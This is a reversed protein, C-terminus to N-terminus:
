ISKDGKYKQELAEQLTKPASKGSNDAPPPTGVEAGKEQITGFYGNYEAKIPNLLQEFGKIRNNEVEITELSFKNSLADLILQDDRVGSLLLEKRLADKKTQNAHQTEINARFEKYESNLTDHQIKLADYQKQLEGGDDLQGVTSQKAELKQELKQIREEYAENNEKSKERAVQTEQNIEDLITDVINKEIGLATLFSRKM